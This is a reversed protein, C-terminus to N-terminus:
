SDSLTLITLVYQFLNMIDLYLSLTAFVYDDISYQHKKQGGVILQTDYIIYSSFLVVGIYALVLHFVRSKIFIGIISVLFFTIGAVFFYVGYGTFDYKTQFAFVTLALFIFLTIGIALLFTKQTTEIVISSLVLGFLGSISCLIILNLPHMRLLSPICMAVLILVTLLILPIFIFGRHELMFQSLSPIYRVASIISFSILLQVSLLSYVRRIFAHRIMISTSEDFYTKVPENSFPPCTNAEPDYNHQPPLPRQNYPPIYTPTPATYSTNPPYSSPPVQYANPPYPVTYAQPYNGHTGTYGNPNRIGQGSGYYMNCYPGNPANNYVPNNLPENAPPVVNPRM